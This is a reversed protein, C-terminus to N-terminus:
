THEEEKIQRFADILQKFNDIVNLHAREFERITEIIKELIKINYEFEKKLLKMRYEFEEKNM